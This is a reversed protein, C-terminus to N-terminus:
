INNKYLQYAVELEDPFSVPEDSTGFCEYWSDKGYRIFEHIGGFDIIEGVVPNISVVKLNTM